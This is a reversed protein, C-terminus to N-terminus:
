ILERQPLTLRWRDSGLHGDRREPATRRRLRGANSPWPRLAARGYLCALTDLWPVLLPPAPMLRHGRELDGGTLERHCGIDVWVRTTDSAPHEPGVPSPAPPGSGRLPATRNHRCLNRNM